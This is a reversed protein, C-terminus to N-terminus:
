PAANRFVPARMTNIGKWKSGIVTGVKGTFGGLIGRKFRAMPKIGHKFNTTMAKRSVRAACHGGSWLSSLFFARILKIIKIKYFM